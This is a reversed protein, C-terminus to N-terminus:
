SIAGKKKRSNDDHRQKRRKRFAGEREGAQINEITQVMKWDNEFFFFFFVWRGFQIHHAEKLHM